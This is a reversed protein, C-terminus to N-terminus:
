FQIVRDSNAVAESLAGLGSLRFGDALNNETAEQVVGRRLAASICVDLNLNFQQALLQWAKVLDFEDSAPQTFHNANYIGDGYFFINEIQHPSTKLLTSAFQYACFSQQTGYAPGMIVITYRLTAM